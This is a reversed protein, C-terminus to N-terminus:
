FFFFTQLQLLFLKGNKSVSRSLYSKLFAPQKNDDCNHLFCGNGFLVFLGMGFEPSNPSLPLGQERARFNGRRM